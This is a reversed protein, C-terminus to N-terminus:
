RGEVVAGLLVVTFSLIAGLLPKAERHEVQRSRHADLSGEKGRAAKKM